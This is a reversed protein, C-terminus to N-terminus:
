EGEAALELEDINVRKMKMLAAIVKEKKKPDTNKMLKDFDKPILQWSLGFKDKIWGCQEAEPLASLGNYFYDMEEQDECEVMFSIAESFKFIPGGNLAMFDNGNLEFTVTMVNGKKMGSAESAAEGYREIHKIKSNRFISVYFNAADEAESDFWLCPIIKQM